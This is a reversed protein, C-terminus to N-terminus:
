GHRLSAIVMAATVLVLLALYGWSYLGDPIRPRRRRVTIIAPVAGALLAAAAGLDVSGALFLAGQGGPASEGTLFISTAVAVHAAAPGLGPDRSHV